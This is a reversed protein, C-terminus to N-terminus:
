HDHWFPSSTSTAHFALERPAHRPGWESAHALYHPGVEGNHVPVAHLDQWITPQCGIKSLSLRELPQCIQLHSQQVEWPSCKLFLWLSLFINLHSPGYFVKLLTYQYNVFTHYNRYFTIHSGFLCLFYETVNTFHLNFGYHSLVVFWISNRFNWVIDINTLSLHLQHKWTHSLPTHVPVFVKSFM